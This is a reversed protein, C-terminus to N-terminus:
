CFSSIEPDVYPLLVFLVNFIAQKEGREIIYSVHRFEKLKMKHCFSKQNKTNEKELKWRRCVIFCSTPRLGTKLCEKRWM